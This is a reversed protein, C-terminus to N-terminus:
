QKIVKIVKRIASPQWVRIIYIGPAALPPTATIEQYGEVRESYQTM